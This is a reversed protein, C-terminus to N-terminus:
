KWAQVSKEPHYMAEKNSIGRVRTPYYHVVLPAVPVRDPKRLHMADDMRKARALFEPSPQFAPAQQQGEPM